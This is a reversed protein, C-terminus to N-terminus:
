RIKYIITKTAELNDGFDATNLVKGKAKYYSKINVSFKGNYLETGIKKFDVVYETREGRATVALESSNLDRDFMIIDSLLPRVKLIKLNHGINLGKGLTGLDYTLVNYNISANMDSLASLILGANTLGIEYNADITKVNGNVSTKVDEKNLELILNKSGEASITLLSGDLVLKITENANIGEPLAGFNIQVNAVTDFDHVEYPVQVQQYCTYPLQRYIPQRYCNRPGPYPYPRPGPYGGGTCVTRYGVVETRYCTSVRTETRYETHTEEGQLTVMESNNAGTFVIERTEGDSAFSASITM